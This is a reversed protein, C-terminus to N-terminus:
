SKTNEMIFKTTLNEVESTASNLVSSFQEFSVKGNKSGTSAIMEELETEKFDEDIEEM